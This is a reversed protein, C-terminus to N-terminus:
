VELEWLRLECKEIDFPVPERDIITPSVTGEGEGDETYEPNPKEIETYEREPITVQAVYRLGDATGCVLGGTYDMCVDVLVEYDREKKSLNIAMEGDNFDINNGAVEYPIFKKGDEPMHIVKM